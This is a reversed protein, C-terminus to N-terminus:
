RRRARARRRDGIQQVVPHGPSSARRICWPSSSATRRRALRPRPRGAQQRIQVNRRPQQRREDLRARDDALHLPVDAGREGARRDDSGAHWSVPDATADTKAPPLCAREEARARPRQEAGLQRRRDDRRLRAVQVEGVFAADAARRPQQLVDAAQPQQLRAPSRPGRRAPSRTRRAARPPRAVLPVRELRQEIRIVAAEEVRVVHHRRDGAVAPLGPLRHRRAPRRVRARDELAQGELVADHELRELLEGARPEVLDADDAAARAVPQEILEGRVGGAAGDDGPRDFGGREAVDRHLHQRGARDAREGLRAGIM